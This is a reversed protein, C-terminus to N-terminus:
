CPHTLMRVTKAALDAVAVAPRHCRTPADFALRRGDAFWGAASEPEVAALAHAKSGDPHVVVLSYLDARKTSREGVYAIWATRPSWEPAFAPQALLRARGGAAPIVLVRPAQYRSGTRQAQVAISRGDPSWSAPGLTSDTFLRRTAGGQLAVTELTTHSLDPRETYALSRSDPAWVIGGLSRGSVLQRPSSGDAAAVWLTRGDSYALQTGDPSWRPVPVDLHGAAAGTTPDVLDTASGTLVAIRGGPAWIADVLGRAAAVVQRLGKGDTGVVWVSTLVTYRNPQRVQTFLVLKGTPSPKEAVGALAASAATLAAFAV